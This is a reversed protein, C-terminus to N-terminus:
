PLIGFTAGIRETAGLSLKRQFFWFGDGFLRATLGSYSFSLSIGGAETMVTRGHRYFNSELESFTYKKM